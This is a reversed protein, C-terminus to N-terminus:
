QRKLLESFLYESKIGTHPPDRDASRSLCRLSSIPRADPWEVRIRSVFRLLAEHIRCNQSERFRPAVPVKTAQPKDHERIPRERLDDCTKATPAM